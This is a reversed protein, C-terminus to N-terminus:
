LHISFLLRAEVKEHEELELPSTTGAKNEGLGIQPMISFAAWWNEASYSITPGVFLASRSEEEAGAVEEGEEETVSHHRAELGITFNQDIFYCLGLDIEFVNESGEGVAMSEHEYVANAAVLFSGFQKDLLLKGELEVEDPKLTWEGYLASGIVDAVPDSFNYKWENSISFESGTVIGATPDFASKSSLNLYLSTQFSGGLGLELEMRHDIGRFFKNKDTRLTNWIELELAGKPLVVSEYTYTFRRRNALSDSVNFIALLAVSAALYKIFKSYQAM